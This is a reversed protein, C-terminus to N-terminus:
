NFGLRFGGRLPGKSQERSLFSALLLSCSQLPGIHGSYFLSDLTLSLHGRLTMM